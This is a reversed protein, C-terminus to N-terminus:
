IVSLWIWWNATFGADYYNQFMAIITAADYAVMFSATTLLYRNALRNAALFDAVSKTQRQSIIGVIVLSLFALGIVWWDTAHMNM